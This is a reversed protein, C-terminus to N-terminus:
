KKNIHPLYIVLAPPNTDGLADHAHPDTQPADQGSWEAKPTTMVSSNAAGRNTRVARMVDHVSERLVTIETPTWHIPHQGALM